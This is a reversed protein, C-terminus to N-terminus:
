HKNESAMQKVRAFTLGERTMFVLGLLTVPVFSIAHLVIAAAVATPEPVAYFSVVGVKYMAHFGGVQGPTPVAVGVVLLTMVLFSGLYGFTMHFARSSVWIGLAISLWLPFSLILSVLLRGPQRMVALGQAFTEVFGAVARALKAPLVREIRLAWTGLREPHGALVFFVGLGAVSAAAALLGGTKVRAYVEATASLSAPDVLLVFLGFLLLVTVLDLLRELIITAFAATPPLGEHKALLYPRLVEGPRAPLLFSACFGIVTTRFATSFRTPGIPALLYQWRFARLVYTMMTILVGVLLLRGDAHRTADWAGRLDVGYLFYALLGLTLVIVLAARLGSSM